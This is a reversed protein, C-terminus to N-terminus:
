ELGCLCHVYGTTMTRGQKAQGAVELFWALDRQPDQALYSLHAINAADPLANATAASVRTQLWGDIFSEVKEGGLQAIIKEFRSPEAEIYIVRADDSLKARSSASKIADNFSGLRDM